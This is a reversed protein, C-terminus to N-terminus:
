CHLIEQSLKVRTGCALLFAYAYRQRQDAAGQARLDVPFLGSARGREVRRAAPTSFRRPSNITKNTAVDANPDRPAHKWPSNPSTGSNPDSGTADNVYFTATM